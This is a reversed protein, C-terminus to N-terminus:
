FYLGRYAHQSVNQSSRTRADSWMRGDERPAGHRHFFALFTDGVPNDLGASTIRCGVPWLLHKHSVLNRKSSSDGRCVYLERAFAVFSFIDEHEDLKM